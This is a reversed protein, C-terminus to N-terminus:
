LDGKLFFIGELNVKSAVNIIDEKSVKNIKKIKTNIDDAKFTDMGYYYEIITKNSDYITSLGTLVEMKADNIDKDTFKGDIMDKIVKKIMDIVIKKNDKDIGSNVLVINDMRNSYSSVYYCLSNEERILRMLLSNPGGGFITNFIVLAYRGEFESLDFLKFGM